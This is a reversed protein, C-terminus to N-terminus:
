TLKHALLSGASIKVQIGTYAQQKTAIIKPVRLTPNVFIEGILHILDGGISSKQMIVFKYKTKLLALFIGGEFIERRVRGSFGDSNSIHIPM